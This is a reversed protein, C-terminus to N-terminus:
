INNYFDITEGSRVEVIAKKLKGTSGAVPGTKTNRSKMKGPSISTRVKEVNVGYMAEIEKRIQVKNANITVEFAFRNMLESQATAKETIIPKVIVGM